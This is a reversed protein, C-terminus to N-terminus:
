YNTGWTTGTGTRQPPPVARDLRADVRGERCLRRGQRFRMQRVLSRQRARPRVSLNSGDTLGLSSLLRLLMTDIEFWRQRLVDVHVELAAM